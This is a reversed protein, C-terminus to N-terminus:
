KKGVKTVTGQGELKEGNDATATYTYFYVGDAVPDGNLDEGNWGDSIDTFEAVTVGWRNVIVCSFESISKAYFDFTFIDNIGDNDPSFINVPVLTIPEFITLTKCHTDFCGNKNFATLCVEVEYTYGIASYSTDPQYEYEHVIFGTSNNMTDLNWIFTTDAEPNKPNAFNLSTNTFIADVVATGKCDANLQDSTVTFNAIPNLSDLVVTDKKVCGNDDTATFEYTGPNLGGWTTPFHEDETDLNKWVYDLAGTGGTGSGFVEGNGSQYDYLRCFAPFYGTELIIEDPYIIEFDLVKSCGNEDNITVTYEGEALHNTFDAGIGEVGSPNPAWFFALQDYAGTWGTVTDVEVYGSEIGFCEPQTINLEADLEDPQGLFFEESVSCGNQDVVTITYTGTPLTNITNSNDVNLQTGGADSMTYIEGGNGGETNVTISGDSFGFCTPENWILDMTLEDAEFIEFTHSWACGLQDIVTVVWSGGPLGDQESDGLVPVDTDVDFVGDVNTWIVDYPDEIGGTIDFVYAGGDSDGFCTVNRLSDEEWTVLVENEGLGVPVITDLTCGFEDTIVLIYDIGGALDDFVGSPGPPVYGVLEYSWLPNDPDVIISGLTPDPIGPCDLADIVTIDEIELEAFEIKVSDIINACGDFVSLYYWGEEAPETTIDETIDGTPDWEYTVLAEDFPDVVTADITIEEGPCITFLDENFTITASSAPDYIVDITGTAMEGCVDTVEVTYTTTGEIDGPVWEEIETGGSSWIIDLEPVGTTEFTLLVSDEACEILIDETTVEIEYPDIIQITASSEITDGCENIIEVTIIVDETGEVIGDDEPVIYFKVTDEGEPFFVTEDLLPYDVGNTATGTIEFDVTLDVTDAESPRIFCVQASDCGEILADEGLVSAIEVSIGNSSFSSAELFVGSDFSMDGADGIAMKIHYTEGCEVEARAYMVVTHADYQVDTGGTNDVLYECNMCPGTNMSGNNLNNMTIPLGVGPIIAINEGDFEYPGDFGPGSIFFGFVDNFTSTSYEHYEESAFVFAFEISDGSPIFDFELVAENNITATGIADLDVDDPDVAVGDNDTASGSDNPGIALEVNGTALLVGSEIPFSTGSADFYGAQTQVAEALPVSHNFEVNSIIVGAGVLVDNVLEEPTQTNTVIIQASAMSGLMIGLISLGVKIKKM